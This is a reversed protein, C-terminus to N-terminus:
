SRTESRNNRRARHEVSLKGKYTGDTHCEACSAKLIPLVDHSFDIEDAARSAGCTVLLFIPFSFRKLM